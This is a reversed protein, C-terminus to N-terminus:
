FHRSPQYFIPLPFVRFLLKSILRNRSLDGSHHYGICYKRRRIKRRVLKIDRRPKLFPMWYHVRSSAVVMVVTDSRPHHFRTVIASCAFRGTLALCSHLSWFRQDGCRLSEGAM